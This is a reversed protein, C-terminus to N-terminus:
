NKNYFELLCQNFLNPCLSISSRESNANILESILSFRRRQEELYINKKTYYKCLIKFAAECNGSESRVSRISKNCNTEM